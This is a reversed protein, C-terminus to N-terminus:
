GAGITHVTACGFVRRASSLPALAREAEPPRGCDVVVFRAGSGRVLAAARGPALRGSLLDEVARAREEYDRTWSPHGVWSRRGTAPPVLTGLRAPALVGGAGPATELHDLADAEGRQLYHAQGPAEVTDRMWDGVYLAGPVVLLAVVAAAAAPRRLLPLGRGALVALPISVGELAHQAFSPSLFAFVVVAAPPWALLMAEGLGRPRRVGFAAAAALPALAVVVTWLAPNGIGENAEAALEWSADVRSLVFYYLLPALTAAGALALRGLDRRAPRVLAAGAALTVLLVQGQWPHLWAAAAGCACATALARPEDLREVALLFVPMLGVSIATPLYGWLQAVPFAEGAAALVDDGFVVLAPSAALLALALAAVRAVPPEVFRRVYARAGLFLVAVAVPKWLLYSLEVSLGLRVGIGSLLFMPHLFVRESAALDLDNAALVGGAYERIWSFYQFQDAAFPGDAGAFALDAGSAHLLMAVLPAFGLAALLALLGLEAARAARVSV